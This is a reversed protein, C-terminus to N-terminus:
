HQPGSSNIERQIALGTASAAAILKLPIFVSEALTTLINEMLPLSVKM